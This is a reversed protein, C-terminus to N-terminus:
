KGLRHRRSDVCTRQHLRFTAQGSKLRCIIICDLPQVVYLCLLGPVFLVTRSLTLEWIYVYIVSCSIIIGIIQFLWGTYLCAETPVDTTLSSWALKSNVCFILIRPMLLLCTFISSDKECTLHCHSVAYFCWFYIFDGGWVNSVKCISYPDYQSSGVLLFSSANLM